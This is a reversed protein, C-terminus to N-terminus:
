MNTMFPDTCLFPPFYKKSKIALSELAMNQSGAVCRWRQLRSQPQAVKGEGQTLEKVQAMERERRPKDKPDTKEGHCPITKSVQREEGQGQIENQAWM